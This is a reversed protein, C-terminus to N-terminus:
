ASKSPDPRRHERRWAAPSTGAVSKFVRTFHSQEAFGTTLAVESLSLAGSLLLEQAKTIRANLQWQHPSLGTSVKFARGFQSQSLGVIAALEGLRVAESLHEIVYETVRRLQRPPLRGAGRDSGEQGLRLFDVCAALTLTDIYLRSFRDPKECEAALCRALHRLRDNRFVRPEPMTLKEGVAESVRALDFDLRLDRVRRIGESYGWVEAGPPAFNMTFPGNVPTQDRKLRSEIRGGGITDLVISLRAHSKSAVQAWAPGPQVDVELAHVAIDNSFCTVQRVAEIGHASRVITNDGSFRNRDEPRSDRSPADAMAM